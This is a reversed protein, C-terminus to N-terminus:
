NNKAGDDIWCAILAIEEATITRGDPPMSKNQTRTKINGANNKVNDFVTWNINAGNDGNHCGSVACNTTIINKIQTNYSTGTDGRPVNVMESASCNTADKVMLAYSGSALDHFAGTSNTESGISYEFPAQGGTATAIIQGNDSLCENDENITTTITMESETSVTVQQTATCEEADKITITYVDAALGTFEGTPQFTSGNISYILQGNGGTGSVSISGNATGCGTTNNIQGIVISPPNICPTPVPDEGSSCSLLLAMLSLPLIEKIFKVVKM